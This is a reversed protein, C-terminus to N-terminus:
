EYKKNKIRNNNGKLAEKIKLKTENSLKKGLRIERLDLVPTEIIKEISWGLRFRKNFTNRNINYKECIDQIVLTENNYEYYKNRKTNRLQIEMTVWRCNNPEYNGKSEIRDITLNKQWGNQISWNYFNIFTLWEDCINVHSYFKNSKVRQTVNNWTKYLPHKSLGHKIM